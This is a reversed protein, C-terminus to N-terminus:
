SHTVPDSVRAVRELAVAIAEARRARGDDVREGREAGADGGLLDRVAQVLTALVDAHRRDVAGEVQEVAEPEGAANVGGLADGAVLRDIGAAIVVVVDHALAAALHGGELVAVELGGDVLERSPHLVGDVRVVDRQAAAARSAPRSALGYQGAPPM